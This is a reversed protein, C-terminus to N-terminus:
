AQSLAFSITSELAQPSVPKHLLHFEHSSAERIRDPDTDGTVIIVPVKRQLYNQIALVADVGNRHSRLRYDSVILEPQARSQELLTIAESEGEAKLVQYGLSDLFSATAHLILPDDDIVLVTCGRHLRPRASQPTTCEDRNGRPITFSFCSGRGVVSNLRIESGLLMILRRVISLGLGLGKERDREPNNIQHFEQFINDVEHAPIGIGTDHVRLECHESRHRVIVVVKGHDTYRIANVVLNRLIRELLQPDSYLCAKTPPIHLSIGKNEALPHCDSYIREFIEQLAIHKKDVSIVGADLKSIDLLSNLLDKLSTFSREILGAIEHIQIASGASYLRQTFLGLAYLPQRLDHSAAALFRSKSQNAQEALRHEERVEDLLAENIHRLRIAEVHVRHNNRSLLMLSTMYIVGWASMILHPQGGEALMRLVIPLLLPIFFTYFAPLYHIHSAFSGAGLGGLVFFLMAQYEIQGPTFFLLGTSGWICGNIFTSFVYFRTWRNCQPMSWERSFYRISLLIRVLLFSLNIALWGLLTTTPVAEYMLYSLLIAILASSAYITFSNQFLHHVSEAKIQQRLASDSLKHNTYSDSDGAEM